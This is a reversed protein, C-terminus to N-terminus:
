RLEVQLYETFVIIEGDRLDAAPRDPLMNPGDDALVRVLQDFAEESLQDAHRVTAGAPVADVATFRLSGSLTDSVAM